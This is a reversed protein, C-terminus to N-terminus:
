FFFSTDVEVPLSSLEGIVGALRTNSCIIGVIYDPMVRPYVLLEACRRRKGDDHNSWTHANLVDISDRLISPSSSFLTDRSAANGDTYIYQHHDLIDRSVKLIVLEDQIPQLKCLMPNKPNIYLPAYEHISRQYVPESRSRWKQVEANSIDFANIHRFSHALKHSLIGHQLISKFNTIHTMHYFSESLLAPNGSVKSPFRSYRKTNTDLTYAM